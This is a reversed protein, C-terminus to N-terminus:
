PEGGRILCGAETSLKRGKLTPDGARRTSYEVKERMGGKKLAIGGGQAFRSFCFFCVGFSFGGIKKYVLPLLFASSGERKKFAPFHISYPTTDFV